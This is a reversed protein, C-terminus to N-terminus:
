TNLQITVSSSLADANDDHECHVDFDYVQSMFDPLRPTWCLFLRERFNEYNSCIRDFKNGRSTYPLVPLQAERRAYIGFDQGIIGNVEVYIKVHDYQGCWERLKACVEDKTGSNISFVDLVFVKKREKDRASLVCSFFDAGRLASPDCFIAFNTLGDPVEKLFKFHEEFFIQGRLESYKGCYYVNYNRVDLASANPREAQAKLDDFYKKQLDTLFPNDKWTTVLIEDDAFFDNVWFLKNPNYDVFYGIRVNALLDLFQQKTFNNAENVFLWDCAVGKATEPNQYSNFFIRGDTQTSRIERPTQLVNFHAQLTESDKIITCADAFAGLRGQEATMSAVNVVEGKTARGLLFQMIAFTKGSRRGGCLAFTNKGSLHRQKIYAAIKGNVHEILSM